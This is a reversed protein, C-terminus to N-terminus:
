LVCAVGEAEDGVAGLRAMCFELGEADGVVEVQDEGGSFDVGEFGVGGDKLMGEGLCADGGLGGEVDAVVVVGVDEAGGLRPHNGDEEVRLANEWFGGAGDDRGQAGEEGQELM